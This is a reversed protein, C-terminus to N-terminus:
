AVDDEEVAALGEPPVFKKNVAGVARYRTNNYIVPRFGMQEIRKCQLLLNHMEERTRLSMMLGYAKMMDDVAKYVENSENTPM